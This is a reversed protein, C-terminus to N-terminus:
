KHKRKLAENISEATNKVKAIKAQLSKNKVLSASNHIEGLLTKVTQENKSDAIVDPHNLENALKETAVLLAAEKSKRNRSNEPLANLEQKAKDIEAVHASMDKRGIVVNRPVTAIGGPITTIGGGPITTHTITTNIQTFKTDLGDFKTNLGDFKTSLTSFKSDLGTFKNNFENFETELGSFKNDFGSFKNDLNAFNTNLTSFKTDFGSFKNDFGAFKNDFGAFKNDLGTFKDDLGSFKTDFGQAKVNFDDLKNQFDKLISPDIVATGNADKIGGITGVKIDLGGVKSDLGGLQSGFGSIKSDYVGLKVNFSDIQSTVNSLRSDIVGNYVPIKEFIRPLDLNPITPLPLPKPVPPNPIIDKDVSAYPLMFDAVVKNDASSYVIVFTGGRMVGGAHELGPNSQIFKGLLLGQKKIDIQQNTLDNLLDAKHLIDTNIVFDHPSATNSFTYQNTNAKVTTAANIASQVDAKFNSLVFEPHTIPPHALVRAKANQFNEIAATIPKLTAPPDNRIQDQLSNHYLEVQSLHDTFTNRVFNEYIHLYPFFWNRSPVTSTNIEIQLTVLNIPLNNSNIINNLTAEVATYPFGIHGEIRFFDYPSINFQLPSLIAQKADPYKSANYSLIANEKKRVNTKYSWYVNAPLSPDIKYYFPLSRDGLPKDEYYGPTIKIGTTNQLEEATPVKFNRILADIRKFCFRTQMVNEGKNNLIPSDYFQHRYEIDIHISNFRQILSAIDFRIFPVLVTNSVSTVLSSQVSAEKLQGLMVHKPFIQFDPCCIMNDAFLTERLENYAYSIDKAFEYVYQVYITDQLKFSGDLLNNWDTVPDNQFDDELIPKCTQFALSLKQKIDDKILLSQVFANKLQEYLSINQDIMVRPVFIDDLAFYDKNVQPISQLLTGVDNKHILLVRQERMSIIGKNDCDTGTCPNLDDAYDELYLIGIFDTSSFGTDSEFNVIDKGPTQASASSLLEYMKVVSGDSTRFYNYKANVDEFLQYQDFIKDIDFCLLDGDTTIAAGKSIVIQKNELVGIELGCIIGVGIARTRTIRSQVDLYNFLDNLQDATLVQDNEFVTFRTNDKTATSLVNGMTNLNLREWRM